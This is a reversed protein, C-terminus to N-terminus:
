KKPGSCGFRVSGGYPNIIHFDNQLAKFRALQDPNFAAAIQRDLEVRRQKVVVMREDTIEESAAIIPLGPM